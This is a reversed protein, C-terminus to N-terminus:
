VGSAAPFPPGGLRRVGLLLLALGAIQILHCIGNHDFPWIATFGLRGQAQIASAILNLLVAAALLGAGAGSSLRASVVFLVLAAVASLGAFVLLVGLGADLTQSLLLSALGASAMWPLLSRAAARGRFELLAAVPFLAAGLSLGALVGGWLVTHLGAPLLLGHVLAGLFASWGLLTLIWTWLLLRDGEPIRAHLWPIGAGALGALVLDTAATTLETPVPNLNASQHPM